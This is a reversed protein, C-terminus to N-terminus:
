HSSSAELSPIQFVSIQIEQLDFKKIKTKRKQSAEALDRATLNPLICM